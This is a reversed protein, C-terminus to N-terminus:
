IKIKDKQIKYILSLALTKEKDNNVLLYRYDPDYDLDNQNLHPVKKMSIPSRIAIYDGSYTYNEEDINDIITYYYSNGEISKIIMGKQFSYLDHLM